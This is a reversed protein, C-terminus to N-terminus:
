LILASDLFGLLKIKTNYDFFDISETITIYTIYIMINSIGLNM